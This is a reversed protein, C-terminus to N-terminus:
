ILNRYFYRQSVPETRWIVLRKEDDTLGLPHLVNDYVGLRVFLAVWQKLNLGHISRGLIESGQFDMAIVICGINRKGRRIAHTGEPTVINEPKVRIWHVLYKCNLGLGSKLRVRIYRPSRLCDIIQIPTLEDHQITVRQPQNNDSTM